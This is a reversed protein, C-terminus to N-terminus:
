GPNPQASNSGEVHDRETVPLLGEQHLIDFMGKAFDKSQIVLAARHAKGIAAGLADRTGMLYVPVRNRASLAIFKERTKHSADAALILLKAKGKRLAQEAALEGSALM